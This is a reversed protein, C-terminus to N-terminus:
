SSCLQPHLSNLNERNWTKRYIVLSNSRSHHLRRYSGDVSFLNVIWMRYDQDCDVCALVAMSLKYVLYCRISFYEYWGPEYPLFLRLTTNQLQQTQIEAPCRVLSLISTTKGYGRITFRAILGQDPVVVEKLIMQLENNVSWGVVRRQMTLPM